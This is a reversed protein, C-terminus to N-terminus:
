WWELGRLEGKNKFPFMASPAQSTIFLSLYPMRAQLNQLFIKELVKFRGRKVLSYVWEVSLNEHELVNKYLLNRGEDRGRRWMNSCYCQLCKWPSFHLNWFMAKFDFNNKVFPGSRGQWKMERPWVLHYFIFSCWILARLLPHSLTLHLTKESRELDELKLSYRGLFSEMVEWSKNTKEDQCCRWHENHTVSAVVWRKDDITRRSQGAQSQSKRRYGLGFLIHDDLVDDWWTVESLVLVM